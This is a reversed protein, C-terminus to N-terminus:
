EYLLARPNTKLMLDLERETVGHEQLMACFARLGEVPYPNNKQGLDTSLIAHEAGVAHIQQAIYDPACKGSLVHCYSYEAVAGLAICHRLQEVTMKCVPLTVHTLCLRKVGLEHAAETVRIAEETGLHGTGVVMDYRKAIELVATVEPRIRGDADLASLGDEWGPANRERRYAKADMTPFWLMKAGMKAAAEAAKPNVGGVECNLVVAGLVDLKPYLERLIAARGPTPFVHSKVAFGGMGADAAQRAMELDGLKRPFVDPGTHIHLDYSGTM